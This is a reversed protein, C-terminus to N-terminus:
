TTAVLSWGPPGNKGKGIPANVEQIFRDGAVWDLTIAFRTISIGVLIEVDHFIAERNTFELKCLVLRNSRDQVPIHYPRLSHRTAPTSVQM